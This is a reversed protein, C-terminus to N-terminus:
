NDLRKWGYSRETFNRRELKRIRIWIVNESRGDCFLCDWVAHDPHRFSWNLARLCPLPNRLQMTLIPPPPTFNSFRYCFFGWILLTSLLFPPIDCRHQKTRKEYCLIKPLGIIMKTKTLIILMGTTISRKHNLYTSKQSTWPKLWTRPKTCWGIYYLLIYVCEKM